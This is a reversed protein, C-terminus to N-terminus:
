SAKVHGVVVTSAYERGLLLCVCTRVCVYVCMRACVRVELQQANEKIRKMELEKEAVIRMCNSREGELASEAADKGREARALLQFFFWQCREKYIYIHIYIHTHIRQPGAVPLFVLLM